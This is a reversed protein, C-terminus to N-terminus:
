RTEARLEMTKPDVRDADFAVINGELDYLIGKAQRLFYGDEVLRNVAATYAQSSCSLKEIVTRHVGPKWPQEPLSEKVNLIFEETIEVPIGAKVYTTSFKPRDLTEANKINYKSAISVCAAKVNQFSTWVRKPKTSLREVNLEAWIEDVLEKTIISTDFSLLEKENFDFRGSHKAVIILAIIYRWNKLFKETFDIQPRTILYEDVKKLIHVIKPWVELSSKSNFVADYSATSRMFKSRLNTAAHPVKLVLAVYGAAAYLPSVLESPPHGLNSYHKKRREYFLGHRCMVDEIDRQIKDTAHLSALEVDTQNNTARIIADRVADEKTVIVKVLVCREDQPETNLESFHRYISESTQLGNVIQIDNAQISDGIIAASTALITVGNNLLWFDTSTQNSLTAKIDENVRNLGMFDRVNSDFLYRRLSGENSIFKYYDSLRALVVYREGRGFAEVFPLELTYNQVKRHLEVLQTAGIFAFKSIASSFHNAAITEVQNGRAVVEEGMDSIDGRSAYYIQVYSKLLRPSLKRYAYKLNNRMQLLASSYAGTLANDDVSFDLLETITAILSDLTAQKFSDHHKCTILVVRLESNTKPWVFAEVDQLLHGNIIIYFGDIGGDQRGDIAGHQIEESSLDYEKLLQEFCFYEFAEDRKESPLKNAVRDDIIGDILILDNKAM